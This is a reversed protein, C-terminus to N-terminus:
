FVRWDGPLPGRLHVRALTLSRKPAPTGVSPGFVQDALHQAVAEDLLAGRHLHRGDLRGIWEPQATGRAFTLFLKHIALPVPGDASEGQLAAAAWGWKELAPQPDVRLTLSRGTDPDRFEVRNRAHRSRVRPHAQAMATGLTTELREVHYPYDAFLVDWASQALRRCRGRAVWLNVEVMRGPMVGGIGGYLPAMAMVKVHPTRSTRPM